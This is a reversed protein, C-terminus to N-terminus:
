RRRGKPRWGSYKGRSRAADTLAAHAPTDSTGYEKYIADEDTDVIFVRDGNIEYSIGNRYDGDLVPAMSRAEAAAEKAIETREDTSQRVAERYAEEHFITVRVAM